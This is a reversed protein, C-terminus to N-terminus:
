NNMNAKERVHNHYHPSIKIYNSTGLLRMCVSCFLTPRYANIHWQVKNAKEIVTTKNWVREYTIIIEPYTHPQDYIVFERFLLPTQPTRHTGIVSDYPTDIHNCETQQCQCCPPRQYKAPTTCVFANGLLVRCLFMTHDGSTRANKDDTLFYNNNYLFLM